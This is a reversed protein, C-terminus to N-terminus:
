RLCAARTISVIRVTASPIKIYFLFLRQPYVFVPVGTDQSSLDPITPFSLLLTRLQALHNPVTQVSPQSVRNIWTYSFTRPLTSKRICQIEVHCNFTTYLNYPSLLILCYASLTIGMLFVCSCSISLRISLMCLIYSPM